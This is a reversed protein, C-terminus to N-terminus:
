LFQHSHEAQQIVFNDDVYRLWLRLPNPTFNFAKSESQETFLNAILTSILFGM